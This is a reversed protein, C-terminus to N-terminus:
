PAGEEKKFRKRASERQRREAELFYAEVDDLPPAPKEETEGEAKPRIATWFAEATMTRVKAPLANKIGRDETVVLVSEREKSLREARELIWGDAKRAGTAYVVEVNAPSRTAPAHVAPSGDFVLLVRM